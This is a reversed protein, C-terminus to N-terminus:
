ASVVGLQASIWTNAAVCTYFCRLANTLTVGTAGATGDITDSGLGYVKIANAGANYLTIIAGIGATASAPLNVGTSAAATTVRNIQAALQLADTRTTGTATLGNATSERIYGTATVNSFSGAASGSGASYAWANAGNCIFEVSGYAVSIVVSSGGNITDSGTPVVTITNTGSASGSFDAVRVRQSPDFSNAPPLTVTRAASISTYALVATESGVTANVDAVPQLGIQLLFPNNLSM